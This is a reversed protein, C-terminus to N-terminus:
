FTYNICVSRYTIINILIIIKIIINIIIIIIILTFQSCTYKATSVYRIAHQM